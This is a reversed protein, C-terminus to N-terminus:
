EKNESYFTVEGTKRDLIAIRDCKKCRVLVDGGDIIKAVAVEGSVKDDFSDFFHGSNFHQCGCGLVFEQASREWLPVHDM